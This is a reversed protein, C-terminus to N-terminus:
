IAFNVSSTAKGVNSAKSKPDKSANIPANGLQSSIEDKVYKLLKKFGPPLSDLLVQRNIYYPAREGHYDVVPGIQKFPIGVLRLSRALRPEMMVFCHNIGQELAISAAAMYLGVAIFPFCRLEAESYSDENIVGTAAGKFKDMQRRRFQDPVALRSIECIEGRPFDWPAHEALSIAEACYKEIPLLENGSGSYVIRVTGAFNGSPKHEIVCHHSHPDFDDTEMGSAREPEFKLEECYVQHRMRFSTERLEQTGAYRPRLYKAFHASINGAERNAFFKLAVRAVPGILPM